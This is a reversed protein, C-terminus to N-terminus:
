KLVYTKERLLLNFRLLDKDNLSQRSKVKMTEELYERAQDQNWNLTELLLDCEKLLEQRDLVLPVETAKDGPNITRLGKILTKIESYKVINHRNTYGFRRELYKQEEEKKWGIRSLELDLEALENSWDEPDSEYEITGKDVDIEELNSTDKKKIGRSVLNADNKSESDKISPSQAVDVPLTKIGV